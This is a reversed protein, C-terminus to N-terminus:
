LITKEVAERMAKATPNEDTPIINERTSWAGCFRELGMSFLVKLPTKHLHHNREWDRLENYAKKTAQLLEWHTEAEAPVPREMRRAAVEDIVCSPTVNRCIPDYRMMLDPSDLAARILNIAKTTASQRRETKEALKRKRQVEAPDDENVIMEAIKERIPAYFRHCYEVTLQSLKDPMVFREEDRLTAFSDQAIRITRRIAIAENDKEDPIVITKPFEKEQM